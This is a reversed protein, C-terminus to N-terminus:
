GEKLSEFFDPNSSKFDAALEQIYALGHKGANSVPLVGERSLMLDEYPVQSTHSSVFYVWLLGGFICRYCHHAGLRAPDPPFICHSLSKTWEPVYFMMCGYEYPKGPRGNLLMRRMRDEHVGLTVQPIEPRSSVATRWLLSMQFLKFKTYDLSSFLVQNERRSVGLEMGGLITLSAHTEWDSMQSECERCLLKEYIGKPRRGVYRKEDDTSMVFYKGGEDYLQKYLFEPYIHSKCLKSSSQCLRCTM